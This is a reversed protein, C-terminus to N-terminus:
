TWSLRRGILQYLAENRPEFYADLYKYVEPSALTKNRSVNQHSLDAPRFNPAVSLFEFVKHLATEPERALEESTLILVQDRSFSQFYRDLQEAYHGRSKYSARIFLDQKYDSQRLAPKLRNEEERLAMEIPLPERGLRKEHFYHSIARETPNRLIAILRVDGILRAIREPVLPSYIYLPSAEGTIRDSGLSSELPFHARYWQPGRAYTDVCPHLGGDFYHVEKAYSRVIQPHQTLYHFLSTTGSKQAGIIIFHPLSRFRSTARRYKWVSGHIISHMPGLLPRPFRM